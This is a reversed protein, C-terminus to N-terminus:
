PEGAPLRRRIKIHPECGVAVTRAAAEKISRFLRWRIWPVLARWGIAVTIWVHGLADTVGVAPRGRGVHSEAIRMAMRALGPKTPADFVLHLAPRATHNRPMRPIMRM